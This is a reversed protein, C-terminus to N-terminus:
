NKIVLFSIIVKFLEAFSNYIRKSDLNLRDVIEYSKTESDYILFSEPLEGLILKKAFFGIKSYRKNIDIISSITYNKQIRKHSVTGLLELGDYIIGNHIRLVTAYEEPLPCFGCDSLDRCAKKLDEEPCGSFAICSTQECIKKFMDNLM